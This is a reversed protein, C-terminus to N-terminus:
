AWGLIYGKYVEFYGDNNTDVYIYVPHNQSGIQITWPSVAFMNENTTGNYVLISNRRLEVKDGYSSGIRFLDPTWVSLDSGSGDSYLIGYSNILLKNSGVNIEMETNKYNIGTGSLGSPTISLGGVSGNNAEVTGRFYGNNAYVNGSTDVKFNGNGVSIFNGSTGDLDIYSSGSANQLKGSVIIGANQSLESLQNISLKDATISGAKITSGEIGDPKVAVKFTAGGDVTLTIGNQNILIWKNSDAGDVVQIGQDTFYVKANQVSLINDVDARLGDAYIGAQVVGYGTDITGSAAVTVLFVKEGASHSTNPTNFAGRKCGELSTQTKSSYEIIEDGVKVYGRSPFNSTDSVPITTSLADIDQTLTSAPYSQPSFNYVSEDYNVCVLKVSIDDKEVEKVKLDYNGVRIREGERIDLNLPLTIEYVEREKFYKNRRRQFVFDATHFDSVLRLSETKRNELKLKQISSTDTASFSFLYKKLRTDFGFELTYVNVEESANLYRKKLSIVDEGKIERSPLRPSDEVITYKRNATRTLTADLVKLIEGIWAFGKRVEDIVGDIRLSTNKQPIDVLNQPLGFAKKDTLLWYLAEYPNSSLGEVFVEVVAFAGSSLRQAYDFRIYTFGEGDTEVTYPNENKDVEVGNVYVKIVNLPHCAVLYKNSLTDVLLCRVRAKGFVIPLPKGEDSALVNPFTDKRARLKPFDSLFPKWTTENCVLRVVGEEYEVNEVMGFWLDQLEEDKWLELLVENGRLDGEIDGNNFLEFTISSVRKESELARTINASNLIRVKYNNGQWRTYYENDTFNGVNKVRLLLATKTM